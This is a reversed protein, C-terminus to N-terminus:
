FNPCKPFESVNVMRKVYNPLIAGFLEDMTVEELGKAYPAPAFGNGVGSFALYCFDAGQELCTEHSPLAKCPELDNFVFFKSKSNAISKYADRGAWPSPLRHDNVFQLRQYRVPWAKMQIRPERDMWWSNAACNQGTESIPWASESCVISDPLGESGAPYKESHTATGDGSSLLFWCAADTVGPGDGTIGKAPNAPSEAIACRDTPGEVDIVFLMKALTAQAHLAIVKAIPVLGYGIALYGAAVSTDSIKKVYPFNLMLKMAEYAVAQDQSGGYDGTGTSKDSGQGRGPPNYLLVVYGEAALKQAAGIYDPLPTVDRDPVVVVGPCPSAAQCAAPKLIRGKAAISTTVVKANITINEM